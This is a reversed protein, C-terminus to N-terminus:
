RLDNDHAMKEWTCEQCRLEQSVGHAEGECTVRGGCYIKECDTCEFIAITADALQQKDLQTLVRNLEVELSAVQEPEEDLLVKLALAQVQSVVTVAFCM